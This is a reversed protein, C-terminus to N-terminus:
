SGTMEFRDVGRRFTGYAIAATLVTVPLMWVLGDIDGFLLYRAPVYATFAFPLLWTLLARLVPHYLGMPYSGFDGLQHVATVVSLSSTTWFSLSAFFGKVAAQIVAGCLVLPLFLLWQVASLHLDMSEGAIVVIAIGLVLEGFGDPYMFRESLMIYLPNVPRILYRYFDGTRVLQWALIWLQDTFLRDLGRPLLSFGLLFLAQQYNWGALGDVHRFVVGILAIQCAVRIAFSAVGVFFDLRYATLRHMSVGSLVVTLWTYRRITSLIM